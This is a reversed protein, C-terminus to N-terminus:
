SEIKFFLFSKNRILYSKPQLRLIPWFIKLLHRKATGIKLSPKPWFLRTIKSVLQHLPTVNTDFITQTLFRDATKILFDVVEIYKTIGKRSLKNKKYLYKRQRSWVKSNIANTKSYTYTNQTSYLLFHRIKRVYM